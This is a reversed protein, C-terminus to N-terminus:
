GCRQSRGAEPGELWRRLEEVPVAIALGTVEDRAALVGVVAGHRDLVPGGSWGPGTAADILLVRGAMGWAAGDADLHVRAAAVVVAGGGPRGALVIPDGVAPPREAVALDPGGIGGLLALDLQRHVGSVGVRYLRRGRQVKAQPAGAVLHASTVVSGALGFGSGVSLGDCGVASVEVTAARAVQEIAALDAGTLPPTGPAGSGRGLAAPVVAIVVTVVVAWRWTVWV